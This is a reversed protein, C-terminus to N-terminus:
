HSASTVNEFDYRKFTSLRSSSRCQPQVCLNVFNHGQSGSSGRFFDDSETSTKEVTMTKYRGREMEQWGNLQINGYVVADFLAKLSEQM